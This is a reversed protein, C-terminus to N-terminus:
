AEQSIVKKKRLKTQTPTNIEALPKLKASPTDSTKEGFALHIHVGGPLESKNLRISKMPNDPDDGGSKEYIENERGEIPGLIKKKKASNKPAFFGTLKEGVEKWISM